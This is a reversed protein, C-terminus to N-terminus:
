VDYLIMNVVCTTSEQAENWIKCELLTFFMNGTTRRKKEEDFYVSDAALKIQALLKSEISYFIAQKNSKMFTMFLFQVSFFLVLM